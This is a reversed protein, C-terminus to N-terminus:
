TFAYRQPAVILGDTLDPPRKRDIAPKPLQHASAGKGGIAVVGLGPPERKSVIRDRDMGVEGPAARGDIGVVM